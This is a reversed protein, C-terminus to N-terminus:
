DPEYLQIEVKNHKPHVLWGKPIALVIRLRGERLPVAYVDGQIRLSNCWAPKTRIPVPCSGNAKLYPMAPLPEWEQARRASDHVQPMKGVIMLVSEYAAAAMGDHPWLFDLGNRAPLNFAAIFSGERARAADRDM